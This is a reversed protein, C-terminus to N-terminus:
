GWPQVIARYPHETLQAIEACVFPEQRHLFRPLNPTDNTVVVGTLDWSMQAPFAASRVVFGDRGRDRLWVLCIPERMLERTQHVLADLVQQLSEAEAAIAALALLSDM